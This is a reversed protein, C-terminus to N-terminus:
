SSGATVGSAIRHLYFFPRLDGAPGAEKKEGDCGALVM